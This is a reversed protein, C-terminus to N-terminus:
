LEARHPELHATLRADPALSALYERRERAEVGAGQRAGVAGDLGPYLRERGLGPVGARAGREAIVGGREMVGRREDLREDPDALARGPIRGLPHSRELLEHREGLL